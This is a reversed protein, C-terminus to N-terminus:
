GRPKIRLRSAHLLITRTLGCLSEFVGFGRVHQRHLRETISVAAVPHGRHRNERSTDGVAVEDEFLTAPEAVYEDRNKLLIDSPLVNRIILGAATYGFHRGLSLERVRARIILPTALIHFTSLLRFRLNNFWNVYDVLCILKVFQTKVIYVLHQPPTAELRIEQEQIFHTPKSSSLRRQHACRRKLSLYPLLPSWPPPRRCNRDSISRTLHREEQHSSRVISRM